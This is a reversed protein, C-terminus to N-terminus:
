SRNKTPLPKQPAAPQIGTNVPLAPTKVLAVTSSATDFELPKMKEM